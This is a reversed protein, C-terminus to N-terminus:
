ALKTGYALSNIPILSKADEKTAADCVAYLNGVAETSRRPRGDAAAQRQLRRNFAPYRRAPEIGNSLPPDM